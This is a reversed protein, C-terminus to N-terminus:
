LTKATNGYNINWFRMYDRANPDGLPRVNFHDMKKSQFTRTKLLKWSWQMHELLEQFQISAELATM